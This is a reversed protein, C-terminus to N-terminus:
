KGQADGNTITLYRLLRLVWPYCPFPMGQKRTGFGLASGPHQGPPPLPCLPIAGHSLPCGHSCLPVPQTGWAPLRQWAREGQPPAPQELSQSLRNFAQSSYSPMQAGAQWDLLQGGMAASHGNGGPAQLFLRLNTWRAQYPSRGPQPNRGPKSFRGLDPGRLELAPAPPSPPWPWFRLPYTFFAVARFGRLQKLCTVQIPPGSPLRSNSGPIEEAPHWPWAELVGGGAQGSRGERRGERRGGERQRSERFTPPPVTLVNQSAPLPSKRPTPTSM